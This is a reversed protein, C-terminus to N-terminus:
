YSKCYSFKILIILFIYILTTRLTTFHYDEAFAENNINHKIYKNSSVFIRYTIKM